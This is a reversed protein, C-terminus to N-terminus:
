KQITWFILRQKMVRPERTGQLIASVLVSLSLMTAADLGTALAHGIPIRDFRLVVAGPIFGLSIM